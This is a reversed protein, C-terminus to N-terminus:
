APSGEKPTRRLRTSARGDLERARSALIVEVTRPRWTKGNRRVVGKDNLASAIRRYGAGGASLRKMLAVAQQEVAHPVLRRDEGDTEVSFGYPVRNSYVRRQSRLHSLVSKTRERGTVVELEGLSAILAFVFRSGTNATDFSESISALDAGCDEIRKTIASADVTSRALRDLKTVVLVAKHECTAALAREL